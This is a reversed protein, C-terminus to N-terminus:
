RRGATTRQRSLPGYSGSMGNCPVVIRRSITFGQAREGAMGAVIMPCVDFSNAPFIRIMGDTPIKLVKLLFECVEPLVLVPFPDM